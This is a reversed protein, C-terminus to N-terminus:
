NFLCKLHSAHTAIYDAYYNDNTSKWAANTLKSTQILFIDVQLKMDMKKDCTWRYLVM